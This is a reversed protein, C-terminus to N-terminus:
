GVSDARRGAAGGQLPGGQHGGPQARGAPQQGGGLAAVKDAYARAIEKKLYHPSGSALSSPPRKKFMFDSKPVIKCGHETLM